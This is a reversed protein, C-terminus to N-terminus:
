KFRPQQNNLIQYADKFQQRGPYTDILMQCAELEQSKTKGSSMGKGVITYGIGMYIQQATLHPFKSFQQIQEKTPLAYHTRSFYQPKAPNSDSISQQILNKLKIMM